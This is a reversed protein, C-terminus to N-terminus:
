REGRLAAATRRAEDTKIDDMHEFYALKDRLSLSDPNV